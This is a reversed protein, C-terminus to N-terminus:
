QVPIRLVTLSYPQFPYSFQARNITETTQKPYIKKPEALSNEDTLKESSLLVAMANPGVKEVGELLRYRIFHLNYPKKASSFLFFM